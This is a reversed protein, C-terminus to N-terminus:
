AKGVGNNGLGLSLGSEKARDPLTAMSPHLLLGLLEQRSLSLRATEFRQLTELALGTQEALERRLLGADERLRRVLDGLHQARRPACPDTNLVRHAVCWTIFTRATRWHLDRAGSALPKRPGGRRGLRARLENIQAATLIAVNEALVSDFFRHLTRRVVEALRPRLEAAYLDIAEAITM